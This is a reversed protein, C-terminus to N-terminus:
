EDGRKGRKEPGDGGGQCAREQIPKHVLTVNGALFSPRGPGDLPVICRALDKARRIVGDEELKVLYRHVTSTSRVSTGAAIERFSPAYGMANRFECIFQLIEDRTNMTKHFLM